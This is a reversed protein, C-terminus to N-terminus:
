IISLFFFEEFKGLFFRLSLFYIYKILYFFNYLVKYIQKLKKELVM